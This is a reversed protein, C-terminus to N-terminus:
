LKEGQPIVEDKRDHFEAGYFYTEQSYVAWGNVEPYWVVEGNEDEEGNGLTDGEYIETGNKDKRGTFQGVSESAVLCGEVKMPAKENPVYIRAKMDPFVVLSGYVWEGNDVRQGRFKIERSM